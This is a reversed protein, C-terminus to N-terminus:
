FSLFEPSILFQSATSFRNLVRQSGTSLRQANAVRDEQEADQEDPHIRHVWHVCRVWHVWHVGKGARPSLPLPAARESPLWTLGMTMAQEAADMVSFV